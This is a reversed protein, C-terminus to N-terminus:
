LTELNALVIERWVRMPSIWADRKNYRGATIVTCLDASPMIWLRQGGNGFGAIWRQAADFAPARDRGLFWQRGYDLGDGTAIAPRFSELLWAQSVIRRDNWLGQRLVLAGIRALDRPRLRLGSAASHVGDRGQAWEFESIGLPAFLNEVAFDALTQGSGRAILLGLLASCGGNYTWRQGPKDVMPRDLVFRYRDAAREMMLESNAPNTYPTQENWETGLTMTLVHQITLAARQEDAALDAYELFQGLLPAEPPPVLNRDLAIGYLIAVVSKTVSRLDHLTWKDFVVHGLPDGWSEDSGEYYRELVLNGSRVVLVSHLERLLGSNIGAELKEGLDTAFGVESPAVSKWSQVPLAAAMPSFMLGAGVGFVVQRRDFTRAM